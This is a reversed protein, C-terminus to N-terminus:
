SVFNKSYNYPKCPAVSHNKEWLGKLCIEEFQVVIKIEKIRYRQVSGLNFQEKM